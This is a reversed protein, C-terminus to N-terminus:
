TFFTILAAGILMIFVGVMRSRINTEQFFFYGFMVSFIASTRKVSIVYSVLTLSLALMQCVTSLGNFFGAAFLHRMTAPRIGSLLVKRKYILVLMFTFTLFSNIALAWFIPASNLVGIKDIVTTVSATFAVILMLRSSKQEIISILPALLQRGTHIKELRLNLLYAGAVIWIMGLIGWVSPLEHVLIPATLLLFLPTFNMIPETNSLDGSQLARMFLTINLMSLCGATLLALLFTTDLEPIPLWFLTPLLFVWSVFRTAWAVVLADVQQLAFKSFVNKISEFFATCVALLVWIFSEDM